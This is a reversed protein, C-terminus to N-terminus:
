LDEHASMYISEDTETQEIEISLRRTNSKAEDKKLDTAGNTQETKKKPKVVTTSIEKAGKGVDKILKESQAPQTARSAARTMVKTTRKPVQLNMGTTSLQQNEDIDKAKALNNNSLGAVPQHQKLAKKADLAERLKQVTETKTPVGNQQQNINLVANTVNGLASRKIKDNKLPSADAKRKGSITANGGEGNNGIVTTKQVRTSIPRRAAPGVANARLQIKTPPM